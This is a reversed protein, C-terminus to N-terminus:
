RSAIMPVLTFAVFGIIAPLALLVGWRAERKAPASRRLRRPAPTRGAAPLGVTSTTM